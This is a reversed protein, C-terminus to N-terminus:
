RPNGLGQVVCEVPLHFKQELVAKTAAIRSLVSPAVKMSCRRQVSRTRICGFRLRPRGSKSLSRSRCPGLMLAPNGLTCNFRLSVAIVWALARTGSGHTDAYTPHTFHARKLLVKRNEGIIRGIEKNLDGFQVFETLLEPFCLLRSPSHPLRLPPFSHWNLM